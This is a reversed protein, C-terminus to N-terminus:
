TLAKDLAHREEDSLAREGQGRVIGKAYLRSEQRGYLSSIVVGDRNSDLLALAFSQEGGVDEFANFRVLGIHRVCTYLSECLEAHEKSLENIRGQLRSLADSQETLRDVVDQVRGEELRIERRKTIASLRRSLSMSYVLLILCIASLGIVFYTSNAQIFRIPEHM